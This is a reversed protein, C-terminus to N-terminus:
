NSVAITVRDTTKIGGVQLQLPIRDGTSVGTPVVINIQNVGVFQPSAGSFLVQAQVGGILVVPTTLNTRSKDLSNAGNAMPSDLAGLGTALIILGNRDGIKAPRTPIGPVSGSPAALSGDNNIAIAQGVGFNIAFIGPSLPAVPVNMPASAVGGRRVVVSATGSTAGSPLVNWPLQANIQGSSVFLLPAAVNNFTVSVNSLSSSLPISDAAATGAALNSGFISVLSGPAVAQGNAFSAANVVGGGAVAPNGQALITLSFTQTGTASASDGVQVKFTWTGGAAPTGAIVGSGSLALGTPLAGWVLSWTYPPNGNIASLTESYPSGATAQPLPSTTTVSLAPAPALSSLDIENSKTCNWYNSGSRSQIILALLGVRGPYSGGTDKWSFQQPAAKSSIGGSSTDLQWGSILQGIGSYSWEPYAGSLNVNPNSLVTWRLLRSSELRADTLYFPIGRQFAVEPSPPTVSGTKTASVSSSADAPGVVTQFSGQILQFTRLNGDVTLIGGVQMTLDYLGWLASQFECLCIGRAAPNSLAASVAESIDRYTAQDQASARAPTVWMAVLTVVAVVSNRM